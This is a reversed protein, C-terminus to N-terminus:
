AGSGTQAALRYRPGVATALLVLTTSIAIM